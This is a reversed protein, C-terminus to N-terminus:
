HRGDSVHSSLFPNSRVFHIHGVKQCTIQVKIGWWNEELPPPRLDPLTAFLHGEGLWWPSPVATACVVTVGPVPVATACVVSVGPVATACVVPVSPVATACVVTVGPVPSQLPAYLVLVM